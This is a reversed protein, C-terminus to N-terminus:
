ASEAEIIQYSTTIPAAKSLMAQAPCYREASLSIAKEVKEPELNRGYLIYEIHITTFVKPHAEARDAHFKIEFDVVDQRMKNLISIVDMATCGILSFAMLELPRVGNNNGGVSPDSDMTVLHGSPSTGTFQMGQQWKIAAEM